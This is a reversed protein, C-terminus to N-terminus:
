IVYGNAQAFDEFTQVFDAAIAAVQRADAEWESLAIPYVDYDAQNRLLRANTLEQERKAVEPLGPPLHRPLVSHQQYDDGQVEAFVIGRAAHYMSYYHRSISQRYQLDFLHRDAIRLHTGALVLRDTTAQKILKALPFPNRGKRSQFAALETKTCTSVHLLVADALELTPMGAVEQDNKPWSILTVHTPWLLLCEVLLPRKTM